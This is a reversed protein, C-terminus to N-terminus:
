FAIIERRIHAVRIKINKTCFLEKWNSASLSLCFNMTKMDDDDDDDDDSLSNSCHHSLEDSHQENKLKKFTDTIGYRNQTVITYIHKLQLDGNMIGAIETWCDHSPGHYKNQITDYLLSENELLVDQLRKM